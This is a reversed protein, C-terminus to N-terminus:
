VKYTNASVEGRDGTSEGDRGARVVDRGSWVLCALMGWRRLILRKM